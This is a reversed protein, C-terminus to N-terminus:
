VALRGARYAALNRRFTVVPSRDTERADRGSLAQWLREWEKYQEHEDEEGRAVPILACKCNSVIVGDASYWGESTQLNYVHGAFDTREVEVVRDLDVATGVLRERLSSGLDAYAGRGEGTFEFAAPDFRLTALDRQGDGLDHGGMEIALGHLGERLPMAHRPSRDGGSEFLGSDLWAARALCLLDAPLAHGGLLSGGGHGSRVPGADAPHGGLRLHELTRGGALSVAPGAAGAFALTEDISPQALSSQVGNALLRDPAVVNVEAKTGDGHFQHASGPVNLTRGVVLLTRLLDEVVVPHQGEDPAGRLAGEVGPSSVVHHGEHLLGAPIWGNETLVPHNPTISLKKGSATRVIVLPGEYWRRTGAEVSPGAVQTSGIVCSDHVKVQGDGVFRVDSVDFSDEEFVPGRSALMVCFYCPDTGTVRLYGYRVGTARAVTARGGLATLRIASGRVQRELRKRIEAPSEEVVDFDEGASILRRGQLPGVYALSRAMQETSPEPLAPRAGTRAEAMDAAEEANALFGSSIETMSLRLFNSESAENGIETGRWYGGVKVASRASRAAQSARFEEALSDASRAM